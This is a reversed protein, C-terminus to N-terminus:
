ALLEILLALSWPVAGAALWSGVRCAATFGRERHALASAVGFLGSLVLAIAMLRWVARPAGPLDGLVILGGTIYLQVLEM